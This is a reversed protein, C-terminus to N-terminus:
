SFTLQLEGPRALSHQSLVGANSAPVPLEASADNQGLRSKADYLRKELDAIEHKLAQQEEAISGM